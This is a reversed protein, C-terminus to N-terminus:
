TALHAPWDRSPVTAPPVLGSAMWCRQSSLQHRGHESQQLQAVVLLTRRSSHQVTDWRHLCLIQYTIEM